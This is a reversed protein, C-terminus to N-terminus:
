VVCQGFIFHILDSTKFTRRKSIAYSVLGVFKLLSVREIPAAFGAAYKKYPQIIRSEHCMFVIDEFFVVLYHNQESSQM